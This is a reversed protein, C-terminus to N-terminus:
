RGVLEAFRGLVVDWGETYSAAVAAADEYREFGRHEFDVRTGDGEPEFRVEWETPTPRNPNVHWSVALRRPPEWVLVTGWYGERGDDTREFMRGGPRGELVVEQVREEGISHSRLPWWDNLRATFVEWAREVPAAVHVSKRIALDAANVSM